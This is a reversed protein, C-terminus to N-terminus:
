LPFVALWDPVRIDFLVLLYLFAVWNLAMLVMFAPSEAALAAAGEPTRSFERQAIPSRLYSIARYTFVAVAIALVIALLTSLQVDDFRDYRNRVLMRAPWTLADLFVLFCAGLAAGRAWRHRRWVGFGVAVLLMGILANTLQVREFFFRAGGVVFLM